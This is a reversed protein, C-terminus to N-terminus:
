LTRTNMGVVPEHPLQDEVLLHTAREVGRVLRELQVLQRAHVVVDLLGLDKRWFTKEESGIMAVGATLRVLGVLSM